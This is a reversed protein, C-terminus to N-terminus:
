LGQTMFEWLNTDGYTTKLPKYNEVPFAKDITLALTDDLMKPILEELLNSSLELCPNSNVEILFVEAAASMMFDFGFLEFCSGLRSPNLKNKVSSATIKVLSKM